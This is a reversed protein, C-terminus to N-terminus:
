VLADADDNARLDILAGNFEAGLILIAANLYLFILAAMAGALGAYTASYSSFESIYISFGWGCVSWLCLTLLVGPLIQTLSHRKAPLIAHCILVGGAPMAVIFIWSLREVSLWDPAEGPLAQTVLNTYIPMVVEIAAVAMVIAGGGIVLGICLLRTKWFPRTDTDHYARSMAERVADVGNSAFYVALVGGVTMVKSNAGDLVANLETVIPAAVQDPWTGFILEILDDTVYDQSLSGALAVTFLIFPFLAMMMSMAVHSSMVFGSKTQFRTLALVLARLPFLLSPNTLTSM